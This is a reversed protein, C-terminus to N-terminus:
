EYKYTLDHKTYMIPIPYYAHRYPNEIFGTHGTCLALATVPVSRYQGISVSVSWPYTRCDRSNNELVITHRRLQQQLINYTSYM